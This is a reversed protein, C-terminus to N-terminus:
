GVNSNNKVKLLKVCLRDVSNPFQKVNLLALEFYWLSPGICTVVVPRLPISKIYFIIM